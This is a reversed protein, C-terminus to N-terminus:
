THIHSNSWLSPRAGFFQHKQVAINSFVSSLGKSLLSIFGTLGLLFWGQSNLQFSQHQLELVKAVQNRLSGSAPSSQPCFSFLAVSSSITPYCWWSLPCSNSCVGPSLSPCPFRTHQLGHPRLSDSVVLCSFLLLLRAGECTYNVTPNTNRHSELAVGSRVPPLAWTIGLWPSHSYICFCSQESAGGKVEVPWPSSWDKAGPAETRHDGQMVLLSYSSLLQWVATVADSEASINTTIREKPTTLAKSHTFIFWGSHNQGFLFPFFGIWCGTVNIQQHNLQKKELVM